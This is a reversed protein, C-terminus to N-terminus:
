LLVVVTREPQVTCVLVYSYMRVGASIIFSSYLNLFIAFLCVRLCVEQQDCFELIKELSRILRERLRMAFTAQLTARARGQGGQRAGGGELLLREAIYDLYADHAAILADLDLTGDKWEDFCASFNKWATELVEFMVYNQLNSAFHIMQNRFLHSRHLVTLANIAPGASVGAGRYLRERRALARQLRSLRRYATVHRRWTRSLMYEVRKLKWLFAFIRRYGASGWVAGRSYLIIIM